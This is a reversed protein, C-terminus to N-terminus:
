IKDDPSNRDVTPLHDDANKREDQCLTWLLNFVATAKEQAEAETLNERFEKQYIKKFEKIAKIPLDM